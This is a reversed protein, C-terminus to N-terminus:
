RPFGCRKEPYCKSARQLKPATGTWCPFLACCSTRTGPWGTDTAEAQPLGHASLRRSLLGPAALPHPAQPSHASGTSSSRDPEQQLQLAWRHSGRACLGPGCSGLPVSLPTKCPFVLFGMGELTQHGEAGVVEAPWAITDLSSAQGALGAPPLSARQGGKGQWKPWWSSSVHFDSLQMWSKAVGLVIYDM